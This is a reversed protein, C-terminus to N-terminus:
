IIIIMIIKKRILIRIGKIELDRKKQVQVKNQNRKLDKYNKMNNQKEM